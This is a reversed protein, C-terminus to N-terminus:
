EMVVRAVQGTNEYFIDTALQEVFRNTTLRDLTFYTNQLYPESKSNEDAQAFNNVIGGIIIGSAFLALSVVIYRLKLM